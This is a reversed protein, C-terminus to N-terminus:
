SDSNTGKPDIHALEAKLQRMYEEDRLHPLNARYDRQILCMIIPHYIYMIEKKEAHARFYDGPQYDAQLYPFDEDSTDFINNVGSDQVM